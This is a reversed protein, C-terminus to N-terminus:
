FDDDEFVDFPSDYLAGRGFELDQPNIWRLLPPVASALAAIVWTQWAGFDITGKSVWDALAMSAIIAVFVRLSSALPSQAFWTQFTTM